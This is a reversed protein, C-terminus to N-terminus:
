RLTNLSKFHFMALGLFSDFKLKKSNVVYSELKEELVNRFRKLVKEQTPKGLTKVPAEDM